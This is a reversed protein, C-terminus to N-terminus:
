AARDQVVAPGVEPDHVVELPVRVLGQVPVHSQGAARDLGQGRDVRLLVEVGRDLGATAARVVAVEVAAGGPGAAVEPGHGPVVLVVAAALVLPSRVVARAVVHVASVKAAQLGPSPGLGQVPSEDALKMSQPCQVLPGVRRTTRTKLPKPHPPVQLPLPNTRPSLRMTPCMKNPPRHITNRRSPSRQMPHTHNTSPPITRLTSNRHHPSTRRKEKNWPLLM